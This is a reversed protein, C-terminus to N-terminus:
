TSGQYVYAKGSLGGGADDEDSAGVIIYESGIAVAVGFYDGIVTDYANPNDLTNVL